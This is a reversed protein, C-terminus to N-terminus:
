EGVDIWQIREDDKWWTRQRKAYARTKRNIVDELESRDQADTRLWAIIERYGHSKMGPDAPTYGRDLLSEVERIWGNELMMTTREAIRVDLTEKPVNMGFIVTQYPPPVTKKIQSPPVKLMEWLEMARVLYAKNRKDFSAATKPDVAVLRDYLTWGDDMDYLEEVKKRLEPPAVPLPELGDIVSSVYLMSGGVIIPVRHRAHIDDIVEEAMRKYRAATLEETPELVDILHHVIDGCEEPTVKATGIDMYQYLQRADGNVIEAAKWGHEPATEAIFRAIDLSLGTKGSATPGVVAILPQTAKRLLDRM